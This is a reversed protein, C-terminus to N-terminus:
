TWNLIALPIVYGVFINVTGSCFYLSFIYVYFDAAHWTGPGPPQYNYFYKYLNRFPIEIIWFRLFSFWFMSDHYIYSNSIQSATIILCRQFSRLIFLCCITESQKRNSSLRCHSDMCLDKWPTLQRM